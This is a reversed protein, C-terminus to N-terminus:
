ASTNIVVQSLECGYRDIISGQVKQLNIRGKYRKIEFRADCCEILGVNHNVGIANNILCREVDTMRALFFDGLQLAVARIMQLNGSSQDLGVQAGPDSM